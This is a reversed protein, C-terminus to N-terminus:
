NGFGVYNLIERNKEQNGIYELEIERADEANHYLKISLYEEPLESYIINAWEIVILGEGDLYDEYGLEYIEEPDSIRYVDFHYLPIRGSTYEIVYTFTPSKVIEEVGLAKALNKVFSTKGTGLDGVLAILEGANVIKSLDFALKDIESFKLIKKM